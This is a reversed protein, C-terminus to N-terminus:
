ALPPVERRAAQGAVDRVAGAVAGPTEEQLYHGAAVRHVRARPLAETVSRLARGLIPDREGWVIAAPGDFTDAVQRARRLGPLSPHDPRTPVMRALALPATRDVLRRLPWRYARAVDGSISARDAQTLHLANQPFGLLRFAAASVLPANAFRHFRSPRAGPRPPGVATNTVVLGALRGPRDAMAALGIPGGWDHVVLIVPGPAIADLLGGVLRAHRELTHFAADRPKDSLGLGALDPLVVRLGEAALPAAVNRWLFGWTPNGHLFVVTPGRGAEMVHLAVGDVDVLCRAFPLEAALFDPLPPAPRAAAPAM